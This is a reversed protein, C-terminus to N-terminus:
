SDLQESPEAEQKLCVGARDAVKRYVLLEVAKPGWPYKFFSQPHSEYLMFHVM